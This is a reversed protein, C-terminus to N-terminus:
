RRDTISANNKQKDTLTMQIKQLAQTIEDQRGKDAIPRNVRAPAKQALLFYKEAQEFQRQDVLFDAYFYNSDIGEKDMTLAKKLLAEAKDNDGFGLPWSPVKYYLIGLSLYAGGSMAMKDISLAKELDAKSSKALSMAGLGGKIGAYTSKIIGSWILIDAANPTSAIFQEAQVILSEYAEKQKKDELRYTAVAWKKQLKIVDKGVDAQAVPLYFLVAFISLLQILRM